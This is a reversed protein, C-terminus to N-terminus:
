DTDTPLNSVSTEILKASEISSVNKIDIGATRHTFFFFDGCKYEVRPTAYKSYKRNKEDSVTSLNAYKAVVFIFGSLGVIINMM